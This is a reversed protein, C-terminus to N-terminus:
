LLLAVFRQLINHYVDSETGQPFSARGALVHPLQVITQYADAQTGLRTEGAFYAMGFTRGESTWGALAGDRLVLTLEPISRDASKLHLMGRSDLWALSGDKWKAVQLSYGVGPPSPVPSFTAVVRKDPIEARRSEMVMQHNAALSIVSESRRRSALALRGQPDVFIKSFRSRVVQPQVTKWLHSPHRYFWWQRDGPVNEVRGDPLSVRRFNM